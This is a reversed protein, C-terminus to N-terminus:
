RPTSSHWSVEAEFRIWEFGAKKGPDPGTLRYDM